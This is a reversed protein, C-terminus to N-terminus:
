TNDIGRRPEFGGGAVMRIRGEVPVQMKPEHPDTGLLDWAGEASYYWGEGDESPYMRVASLHSHLEEKAAPSELRSLSQLNQIGEEVLLRVEGIRAEM